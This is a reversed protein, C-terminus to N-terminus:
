YRAHDSQQERHTEAETATYIRGLEITVFLLKVTNGYAFTQKNHTNM